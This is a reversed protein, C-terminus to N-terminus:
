VVRNWEGTAEDKVVESRNKNLFRVIHYVDVWIQNNGDKQSEDFILQMGFHLHSEEINNRNEHASYGTRGVYGIVDGAAVDNGKQISKNYPYDKRLHAYYYYRKKDYSRIGIRWGGYQNWGLEEIIGSEVAVVPTGTDAMYDHGM